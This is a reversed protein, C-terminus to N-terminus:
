LGSMRERALEALRARLADAEQGELGKITADTSASATHLKVTKLGFARAIPGAHVDIFQIRGYPVVTFTHWLKGRTILLEDATELWKMNRVQGPILWALWVGLAVVAAVGSWWWGGGNLVATVVAAILLIVIWIAAAILRVRALKPSVPRMGAPVINTM